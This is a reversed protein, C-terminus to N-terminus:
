STTQVRLKHNQAQLENIQVRLDRIQVRLKYCTVRVRLKSCKFESGRIDLGTVRLRYSM